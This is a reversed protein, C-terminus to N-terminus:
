SPSCDHRLDSKLRRLKTFADQTQGKAIVASWRAAKAPSLVPRLAEYVDKLEPTPAKMLADMEAQGDLEYALQKVEPDGADDKILDQLTPPSNSNLFM